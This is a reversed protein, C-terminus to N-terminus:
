NNEKKNRIYMKIQYKLDSNNNIDKLSSVKYGQKKYLEIMDNESIYDNSLNTWESSSSSPRIEQLKVKTKSEIERTRGDNTKPNNTSWGSWEGLKSDSTRSASSYGSPAVASYDSSITREEKYWKYATVRTNTDKIAGNFPANTYYVKEGSASNSGSPYYTRVEHIPKYWYYLTLTAKQCIDTQSTDCPTTTPSSWAGYKKCLSTRSPVQNGIISENVATPSACSYITGRNYTYNKNSGQGCPDYQYIVRTSTADTSCINYQYPYYSSTVVRTRYRVIDVGVPDKYTYEGVASPSLAKEGNVTYYEKESKSSYWKYADSTKDSSNTYGSKPSSTYYENTAGASSKDGETSYYTRKTMSWKYLTDRYRYYNTSSITKYNSYPIEDKWYEQVPGLNDGPKRLYTPLFKFETYTVNTVIDNTSGEILSGYDNESNKSVCSIWPTYQKSGNELMCVRIFTSTISCNYFKKSDVVNDKILTQLSVNRCEGKTNVDDGPHATLYSKGGSLLLSEYESTVPTTQDPNGPSPDVPTIDPGTPETPTSPTQNSKGASCSKVLYFILLIAIIVLIVILIKRTITTRESRDYKEYGYNDYNKAM